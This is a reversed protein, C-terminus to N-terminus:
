YTTICRDILLMSSKYIIIGDCYSYHLSFFFTCKKESRKKLRTSNTSTPTLISKELLLWQISERSSESYTFFDPPWAYVNALLAKSDVLDFIFFLWNKKWFSLSRFDRPVWLFPKLRRWGRLNNMELLDRPFHLKGTKIKREHSLFFNNSFPWYKRTKQPIQITKPLIYSKCRQSNPCTYILGIHIWIRFYLFCPGRREAVSRHAKWGFDCFYTSFHGRLSKTIVRYWPLTCSLHRMYFLHTHM